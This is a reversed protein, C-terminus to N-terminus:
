VLRFPGFAANSGQVLGLLALYHDWYYVVRHIDTVVAVESAFPLWHILGVFAVSIIRGAISPGFDLGLVFALLWLGASGVSLPHSVV